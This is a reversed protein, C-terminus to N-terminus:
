ALLKDLRLDVIKALEARVTAREVADDNHVRQRAAALMETDTKGTAFILFVHGFREEYARNATVLAAKVDESAGATGAQEQASWGAEVSAAGAPLRSGIRPHADLAQRVGVWDLAELAVASAAHLAAADAYPTGAGVADLWATAACCARLRERAQEAPLANLEALGSQM